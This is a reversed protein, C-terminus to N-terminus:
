FRSNDPYYCHDASIYNFEDLGECIVADSDDDTSEGELRGFVVEQWVSWLLREKMTVEASVPEMQVVLFKSNMM